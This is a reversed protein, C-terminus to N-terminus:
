LPVEGRNLIWKPNNVNVNFPDMADARVLRFGAPSGPDAGGLRAEHTSERSM